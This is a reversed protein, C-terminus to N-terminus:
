KGRKTYAFAGFAVLLIVIVIVLGIIIITDSSTGGGTTNGTGGTGGTGGNGSGSSSPPNFVPQFTYSYGFGHTLTLPNDTPTSTYPYGGHGAMPTGSIIWHSFTWNVDAVATLTLESSNTLYYTGEAPTTHGGVTHLLVVRASATAPIATVPPIPEVFPVFFIASVIYTTGGAVTLTYPNNTSTDNSADTSIAWNSFQYANATDPTATFTVATGSPYTYTGAAPDTDGGTSPPIIVTAQSQASVTAIIPSTAALIAALLILVIATSTKTRTM